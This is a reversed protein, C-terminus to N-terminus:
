GLILMGCERLLRGRRAAVFPWAGLPSVQHAPPAIGMVRCDWLSPLQTQLAANVHWQPRPYASEVIRSAPNTAGALVEVSVEPLNAVHVSAPRALSLDLM